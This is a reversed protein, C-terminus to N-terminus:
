HTSRLLADWENAWKVNNQAFEDSDMLQVNLGDLPDGEPGTAAPLQGQERVLESGEPGLVFDMFLTAAAPHSANKLLAVGNYRMIIPEVAPRGETNWRVPAGAEAVEFVHHIYCSLAVGYQGAALMPGLNSHGDIIKANAAIGRFAEDIQKRSMGQKEYYMVMGMYWDYDNQVVAIKDKWKPDAFGLIDDPLEQPNVIDTNYAVLFPQRRYGTWGEGKGGEAVADRYKSEYTGLLGKAQLQELMPQGGNTVDVTYVGAEAEQAIKAITADSEGDLFNVTIGYKETFKDGLGEGFSDTGYVTLTGEEQAAAVLAETRQPEPMAAFDEYVATAGPGGRQSASHAAQDAVPGGCATLAILAAFTVVGTRRARRATWTM